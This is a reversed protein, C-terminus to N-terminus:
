LFQRVESLKVPPLGGMNFTLQEQDPLVGDIRGLALAEVEIKNQGVRAEIEYRYTGNAAAAGSDTMGDWVFTHVGADQAGLDARHLVNGAGDLVRVTVGDVDQPITFGAAARGDYLTLQAGPLEKGTLASVVRGEFAGNPVRGGEAHEVPAALRVAPQQLVPRLPISREPRSRRRGETVPGTAESQKSAPTFRLLVLVAVVLVAAVVAWVSRRSAIAM